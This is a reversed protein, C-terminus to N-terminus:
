AARGQMAAIQKANITDLEQQIDARAYLRQQDPTGTRWSMIERKREDLSKPDGQLQNTPIFLPDQALQRGATAMARLFPAYDGLKTGDELRMNLLDSAIEKEFLGQVAAQAYGINNKFDQGWEQKLKATTEKHAKEGNAIIAAQANEQM